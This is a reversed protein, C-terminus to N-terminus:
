TLWGMRMLFDTLFYDLVLISVSSVVVAGTTARGVGAAGGRVYLGKYCGVVALVFGFVAAKGLGWLLDEPDNYWYIRDLFAGENIGILKVGVMYSGVVGVGTFCAALLPGMVTSALIRPAVLYELPEVAMAELADIQETVKMTGIEAAMSSGARATMMLAAFVPGISRCLSLTVTSGTLSSAGFLGFGYEAQLTFVGGTFAGTIVIISMSQVGVFELQRMIERPRWPPRFIWMVGLAMVRLFRGLEEVRGIMWAGLQEVLQVM